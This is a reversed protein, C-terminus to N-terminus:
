KWSRIEARAESPSLGNSRLERYEIWYEEIGVLRNALGRNAVEIEIDKINISPKQEITIEGYTVEPLGQLKIHNSLKTPSGRLWNIFNEKITQQVFEPRANYDDIDITVDEGQIQGKVTPTADAEVYAKVTILKGM